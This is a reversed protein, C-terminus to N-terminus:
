ENVNTEQLLMEDEPRNLRKFRPNSALYVVLICFLITLVGIWNVMIAEPTKASYDDKLSFIAKETIGLLATACALIFILLGFFVHIPMYNSRLHSALGPFLFTVLGAVWQMAFLIVTIIGMWSHLSYLNPKETRNHFNFVAILGIVSLFFASIMVIAHTYKLKKKRENRFVRYTMLGNGYLYVLGLMMLLPHWNFQLGPDSSWAFGGQYHGMWIGTLVVAIFGSVQAIGYIPTFGTTDQEVEDM